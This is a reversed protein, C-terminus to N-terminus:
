AMLQPLRLELDYFAAANKKGYHKLHFNFGGPALSVAGNTCKFQLLGGNGSMSDKGTHPLNLMIRMGVMDGVRVEKALQKNSAEYWVHAGGGTVHYAQGGRRQVGEFGYSDLMSIAKNLIAKHDMIVYDESAIGLQHNGNCIAVKGTAHQKGDAGVWYLPQKVPTFDLENMQKEEKIRQMSASHRLKFGRVDQIGM